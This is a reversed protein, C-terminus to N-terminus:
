KTTNGIMNPKKALTVGSPTAIIVSMPWYRSKTSVRNKAKPTAKSIGMAVKRSIQTPMTSTSVRRM